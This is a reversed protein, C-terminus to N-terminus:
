KMETVYVRNSPVNLAATVARYVDERVRDSAGGECVVVVGTISPTKVTEVLAEESSGNKIIVYENEERGSGTSRSVAYKYEESSSLTIMVEAKGVGDIASLISELENETSSRYDTRYTNASPEAESKSKTNEDNNGGSFLILLMGVIGLGAAITMTRRSEAARGLWKSFRDKIESINM